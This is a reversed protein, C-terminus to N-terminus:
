GAGDRQISLHTDGLPTRGIDRHDFVIVEFHAALRPLVTPWSQADAGLGPILFLRTGSGHREVYLELKICSTSM